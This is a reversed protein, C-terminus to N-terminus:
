QDEQEFSHPGQHAVPWQCSVGTIIEGDLEGQEEPEAMAAIEEESLGLGDYESM